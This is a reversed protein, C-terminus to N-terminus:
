FPPSQFCRTKQKTLQVDRLNQIIERYEELPLMRLDGELGHKVADHFTDRAM